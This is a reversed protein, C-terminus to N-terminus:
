SRGILFLASTISSLTKRYSAMCISGDPKLLRTKRKKVRVLDQQWVHMGYLWDVYCACATATCILEAPRMRTNALDAYTRAYM